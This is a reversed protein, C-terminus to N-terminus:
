IFCRSMKGFLCLKCNFIRSTRCFDIPCLPKVGPGLEAPGIVGLSTDAAVDVGVFVGDAVTVNNVDLAELINQYDSKPPCENEVEMAKSEKVAM